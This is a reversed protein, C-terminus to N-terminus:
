RTVTVLLTDPQLAVDVAMTVALVASGSIVVNPAVNLQAMLKAWIVTIGSGVVTVKLQFPGFLKVELIWVGM